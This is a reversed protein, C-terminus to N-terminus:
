LVLSAVIAPTKEDKRFGKCELHFQSHGSQKM